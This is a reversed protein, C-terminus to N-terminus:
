EFVIHGWSESSGKAAVRLGAPLSRPDNLGAGVGLQDADADGVLVLTIGNFAAAYGTVVILSQFSRYLLTFVNTVILTHRGGL